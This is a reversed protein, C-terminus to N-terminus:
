SKFLNLFDSKSRRAIEVEQGNSMVAVGGEVAEELTAAQGVVQLNSFYRSLYKIIVQRSQYEDDVVFVNITQDM